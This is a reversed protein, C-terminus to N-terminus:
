TISSVVSFAGPWVLGFDVSCLARIGVIGAQFNGQQFPNAVLEVGNLFDVLVAFSWPGFLATSAPANSTSFAAYNALSGAEIPGQWLPVVGNVAGYVEARQRLLGAVARTTVWSGPTEPALADGANTAASVATSLAFSAGAVANVGATGIIGHPMGAIGSGSIM